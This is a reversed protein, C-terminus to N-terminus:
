WRLKIKVQRESSSGIPEPMARHSFRADTTGMYLVEPHAPDSALARVDGGAPGMAEWVQAQVPRASVCACVCACVLGFLM